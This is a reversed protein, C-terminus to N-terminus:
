KIGTIRIKQANQTSDLLTYHYHHKISDKYLNGFALLDRTRIDKLHGRLVNPNSKTYFYFEADYPGALYILQENQAQNRLIQSLEYHGMDLELGKRETIFKYKEIMPFMLLLCLACLYTTKLFAEQISSYVETIFLTIILAVLPLAPMDYWHIRTKPISIFILFLMFFISCTRYLLDKKVIAYILAPILLWILYNFRYDFLNVIYYYWESTHGELAKSFRGGFDNDMIAQLYGASAQERLICFLIFPITAFLCYFGVQIMKRYQGFALLTLIFVPFVLMAAASKSMVALSLCLMFYWKSGSIKECIFLLYFQYFAALIWFTLLADYDGTISGHLQIFGKSCALIFMCFCAAYINKGHKYIIFGCLFICLLGSLASPFRIAFEDLGFLHISAVQLWIMFPPKTNYLDAQGEFTSVLYNGSQCMEAANVALRSEDWQVIPLEGLHYFQLFLVYGLTLGLLLRPFYLRLAQAQLNSM